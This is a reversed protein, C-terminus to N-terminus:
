AARTCDVTTFTTYDDIRSQGRVEYQVGSVQLVDGVDLLVAVSLYATFRQRRNLQGTPEDEALDWGQPQLRGAVAGFGSVVALTRSRLGTADATVTPRYVGISDALDAQAVLRFADVSVFRLFPAPDVVKVRWTDDAWMFREDPRVWQLTDRPKLEWPLADISFTFTVDQTLFVANSPQAERVPGPYAAFTAATLTATEDASNPRVSVALLDGDAGWAANIAQQSHFSRV